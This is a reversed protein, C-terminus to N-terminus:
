RDVQKKRRRNKSPNKIEECSVYICEKQQEDEMVVIFRGDLLKKKTRQITRLDVGLGNALHQLSGWYGRHKGVLQIATMFEIDTVSLVKDKIHKRLLPTLWVSMLSFDLKKM